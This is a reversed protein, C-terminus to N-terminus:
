AQQRRFLVLGVLGAGFVAQHVFAEHEFAGPEVGGFVVGALGVGGVGVVDDQGAVLEHLAHLGAGDAAEAAAGVEDEAVGVEVGGDGVGLKEGGGDAIWQGIHRLLGEVGEERVIKGESQVYAEAAVIYGAAGGAGGCGVDAGAVTRSDLICCACRRTIEYRCRRDVARLHQGDGHLLDGAVPGEVHHDLARDGVADLQLGVDVVQEVAEVDVLRVRRVQDRGGTDVGQDAGAEAELTLGMARSTMRLSTRRASQAPRLRLVGFFEVGAGSEAGKKWWEQV